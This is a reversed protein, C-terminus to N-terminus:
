RSILRGARRERRPGAAWCEHGNSASYLRDGLESGIILYPDFTYTDNGAGGTATRARADVVVSASASAYSLYIPCSGTCAPEAEFVDDGARGEVLDDRGVM